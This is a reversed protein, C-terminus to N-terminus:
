IVGMKKMLFTANKNECIGDRLKYDFHLEDNTIDAEFRMNTLYNPFEQATNCVELDHTAVIGMCKKQVLKRIVEITGTRKDDSNTGRLIEDLLVFTKTQDVEKMITQLRKVEAFFYSESDNLSDELRMSVWIPLPHINAEAACVPAGMKALILNVGISRLFTSKGSMNSGTLIVFQHKNFSVDNNVRKSAHLLPHGLDKFSLQEEFNIQPFSYEQHNYKLNALSSLAEIQGITTIWEPTKSAVESKIKTLKQYVGFHYPYIGNLFIAGVPNQINDLQSFVKSLQHISESATRNDSKLKQQLKKLQESQFNKSEISNLIISYNKLIDDIKETYSLETKFKKFNTFLIGVNLLFTYTAINSYLSEYTSFYAILSGVLIFPTIYSLYLYVKSIPVLPSDSWKKIQNLKEESDEAISAYASVKQRWRLDDVLEKVAEQHPIIDHDSLGESFLRALEKEGMITQTRNIAHFVSNEGFIDLDNTYPHGPQKFQQGNNNPYQQQELYAIERENLDIFAQTLKRDYVNQVHLKVLFLFVIFLAIDIYLFIFNQSSLFFYLLVLVGLISVVRLTSITQFKANIKKYEAQYHELNKQYAEM